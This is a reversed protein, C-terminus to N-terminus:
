GSQVCYRRYIARWIRDWLVPDLASTEALEGSIHRRKGSAKGDYGYAYSIHLVPYNEVRSFGLRVFCIDEPDPLLVRM